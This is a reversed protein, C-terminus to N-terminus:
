SNAEEARVLYRALDWALRAQDLQLRAEAVGAEADRLADHQDSCAAYLFAAREAANNGDIGEITHAYEHQQLARRALALAAAAEHHRRMAEHLGRAAVQLHRQTQMALPPEGLALLLARVDEPKAGIADGLGKIAQDMKAAIDTM